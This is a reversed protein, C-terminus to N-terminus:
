SERSNEMGEAWEVIEQAVGDTAYDEWNVNGKDDTPNLLRLLEMSLDEVGNSRASSLRLSLDLAADLYDGCDDTPHYHDGLQSNIQAATHSLQAKFLEEARTPSIPPPNVM